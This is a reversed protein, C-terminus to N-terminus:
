TFRGEKAHVTVVPNRSHHIGFMAKPRTYVEFATLVCGWPSNLYVNFMIGHCMKPDRQLSDFTGSIRTYRTTIYAPCGGPGVDLIGDVPIGLYQALIAAKHTFLMRRRGLARHRLSNLIEVFVDPDMDLFLSGDGM